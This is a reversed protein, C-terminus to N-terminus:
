GETTAWAQLQRRDVKGNPLHPLRPVQRITPVAVKGLARTVADAIADHAAPAGDRVEVFAFLQPSGQRPRFRWPRRPSSTPFTASSGSSLPQHCM